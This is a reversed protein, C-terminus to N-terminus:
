KLDLISPRDARSRHHKPKSSPGEILRVLSGDMNIRLGVETKQGELKVTESWRAYWYHKGRGLSERELVLSSVFRSGELGRERLHAQAVAAAQDIPVTPAAVASMAFFSFASTWRLTKM